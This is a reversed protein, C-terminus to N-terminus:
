TPTLLSPMDIIEVIVYSHRDRLYLWHLRAMLRKIVKIVIHGNRCSRPQRGFSRVSRGRWPWRRRQRAWGWSWSGSCM